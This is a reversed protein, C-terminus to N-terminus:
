DLNENLFNVLPIIIRCGKPGAMILINTNNKISKKIKILLSFIHIPWRNLDIINTQYGCKLLLKSYLRIKLRGGDSIDKNSANNGIISITKM